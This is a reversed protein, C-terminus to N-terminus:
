PMPARGQTPLQSRRPPRQRGWEKPDVLVIMKEYSKAWTTKTITITSSGMVTNASVSVTGPKKSEIKWQSQNVGEVKLKFVMGPKLDKFEVTQGLGPTEYLEWRHNKNFIYTKGGDSKTDGVAPAKEDAVTLAWKEHTQQYTEKNFTGWAPAQGPMDWKITVQNPGKSTVEGTKASGLPIKGNKVVTMGVKLAEFTAPMGNPHQVPEGIHQVVIDHVAQAKQKGGAWPKGPLDLSWEKANPMYKAGMTALAEAAGDAGEGNKDLKVRINVKTGSIKWTVIAEGGAGKYKVISNADTKTTIAPEQAPTEPDEGQPPVAGIPSVGLEAVLDSFDKDVPTSVKTAQVKVPDPVPEQQKHAPETASAKPEEAAKIPFPQVDFPASVYDKVYGKKGKELVMGQAFSVAMAKDKMGPHKVQQSMTGGIKGWQAVVGWTGDPMHVVAVKYAKNHGESTNVLSFTTGVSSASPKWITAPPDEPKPENKPVPKIDHEHVLAAFDDDLAHEVHRDHEPVWVLKGNVKATHGKVKVTDM